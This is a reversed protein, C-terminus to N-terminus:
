AEMDKLKIMLPFLEKFKDNPVPKDTDNWDCYDSQTEYLIVNYAKILEKKLREIEKIQKGQVSYPMPGHKYDSLKERVLALSLKAECPHDQTAECLIEDLLARLDSNETQLKTVLEDMKAAYEETNMENKQPFMLVDSMQPGQNDM